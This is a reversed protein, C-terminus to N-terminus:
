TGNTYYSHYSDLNGFNLQFHWKIPASKSYNLCLTLLILRTVLMNINLSLIYSINIFLSLFNLQLFLLHFWSLQKFSLSHTLTRLAHATIHTQLIYVLPPLTLPPMVCFVNDPFKLYTSLKCHLPPSPTLQSCQGPTWNCPNPNIFVHSIYLCTLM